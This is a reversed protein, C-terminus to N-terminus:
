MKTELWKSLLYLERHINDLDFNVFDNNVKNTWDLLESLQRHVAYAKLDTLLNEMEVVDMTQVLHAIRFKFLQNLEAMFPLLEQTIATNSKPLNHEIPVETEFVLYKKLEEFLSNRQVPKGLIGSFDNNVKEHLLISATFAVIPINKCTELSRIIRAAERGDMEPMRFDMLILDPQHQQALSIAEHGNTGMLLKIPHDALYASILDRNTAVDDVVLVTAEKFRLSEDTSPAFNSSQSTELFPVDAVSITFVSGKGLTSDVSIEGNMLRALRRTISLGLGTGGYHRISQEAGQRFSEFISKLDQKSIGMGTDEVAISLQGVGTKTKDYEFTSRIRIHGEHTFKVANGVLNILMQKLRVDDIIVSKPFTPPWELLIDLNKQSTLPFFMKHVEEVLVQMDVPEPHLNLQGAEIKALDLLDNILNLLTHGNRQITTLQNIAQPEHAQQLLIESFGLISNLPTRIEHSMNALFESKARNAKEAKDKAEILGMELEDKALGDSIINAIVGLGSVQDEDWDVETDHTCLGLVGAPQNNIDFRVFLVSKMQQSMWEQKEAEAEPPVLRVDPIIFTNQESLKAAFWPFKSLPVGQVRHQMSAAGETRWDHTNSFTMEPSVQFLFCRDVNFFQGCAQLTQNIVEHTTAYNSKVFESSIKAILQRFKNQRVILHEAKKTADIDQITGYLRVCQTDIFEAQGIIRVWKKQGKNTIITLEVEQREGSEIARNIAENVEKWVGGAKYFEIIREADPEYDPELGHIEKTINTWVIKKSVLDIEWSGVRAVTSTRVLLEKIEILEMEAMKSDTINLIVGDLWLPDGASDYVASGKEEVYLYSGDSKLIRYQIEFSERRSVGDAVALNVKELDDPYIISAFCRKKNNIFDEAPFGTLREIEDSIFMMKYDSTPSCRYAVGRMNSIISNFQQQNARIKEEAVKRDTIDTEIGIYQVIYNNEDFVPTINLSLWYSHGSKHYNLIEQTFPKKSALGERIKIIHAPDTNKGQLIRGLKKGKVEELQYGTIHTFADNVWVTIGDADTIVVGNNTKSAVLSLQSIEAEAKKRDTIDRIVGDLRIRKGSTDYIIKAKSSVWREERLATLIRHEFEFHGKNQLAERIQDMIKHDEPHIVEQWKVPKNLWSSIPFGYMQEAAPTILLVKFDPIQASWIIDSMENLISELKQSTSLLQAESRKRESIDRSSAIVFRDDGVAVLKATVEVPCSEGSAYNVNTGEIVMQETRELQRIHQIWNEPNKFKPDIDAISHLSVKDRRIGIREEAVKNFYYIKGNEDTIQIADSSNDILHQLLEMREKEKKLAEEAKKRDTIDQHIGYMLIPKSDADRLVVKGKDLIWVWHGDKHKMRYEFQFTDTENRLHRQMAQNSFVKDDPHILAVWDNVTMQSSEAPTYGKISGWFENFVVRGSPIHWEWTGSQTSEIISNLTQKEKELAAKAINRQIISSLNSVLSKLISIEEKTINREQSCEEIGIFGYFLNNVFLPFVFISKVGQVTLVEKLEKQEIQSVIRTYVYEKELLVLLHKFAELKLKELSSDNWNSSVGRSVWEINQILRSRGIEEDISNEFYYVRDAHIVQGIYGLSEKLTDFLDKDEALRGSIKAAASLLEGKYLAKRQARVLKNQTRQLQSLNEFLKEDTRYRLIAVGLSSAMSKLIDKEDTGWPHNDRCNDFGVFGWFIGNIIIPVVLISVIDQPVLITQESEPFDSVCGVIAEGKSLLDLWRPFLRDFSLNQLEPNDAQDSIGERTWEYRQSMLNEQTKVNLHYEFIYVRDQSTVNGIISFAQALAEEMVGGSLLIQNVQAVSSLLKEKYAIQIESRKRQDINSINLSVGIIEEEVYVPSYDYKFWIKDGKLPTEFEISVLNGSLAHEFKELFITHTDSLIYPKFDEYLEPIKGHIKVIAEAAAKNFSLLKFDKSILLNSDLSSDLISKLRTESDALKDQAIKQIEQVEFLRKQAKQLEEINGRLEEKSAALQYKKQELVRTREVVKQELILNSEKYFQEKEQAKLILAHQTTESAHRRLNSKDALAILYFCSQLAICAYLAIHTYFNYPLLHLFAGTFVLIGILFFVWGVAYLRAEKLGKWMLFCSMFGCTICLFISFVGSIVLLYEYKINLVALVPIIASLVFLQVFVLVRARNHHKKLELYEVCFFGVFFCLAAIWLSHNESSFGYDLSPNYNTLEAALLSSFVVCGLHLAYLYNKTSLYIILNYIFAIVMAGLFAMLAMDYMKKEKNQAALSGIKTPALLPQGSEVRLYYTRKDTENKESLPLFSLGMFRIRAQPNTDLTGFHIPNAYCGEEDLPYFDLRWICSQWIQLWSDQKSRNVFTRKYWCSEYRVSKTLNDLNNRKYYDDNNPKIIDEITMIKSGDIMYFINKGVALLKSEDEFLISEELKNAFLNVPTSMLVLWCGIAFFINNIM